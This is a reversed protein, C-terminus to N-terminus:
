SKQATNRRRPYIVRAHYVQQLYEKLVNKVTNIEKLSIDADEFQGDDMKSKVIREVLDSISQRSYDKLTRSAAELTDCLM